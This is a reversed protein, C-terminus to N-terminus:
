PHKVLLYETKKVRKKLIGRRTLTELAEALHLHYRSLGAPTMDLEVTGEIYSIIDIYRFAYGISFLRLYKCVNEMLPNTERTKCSSLGLEVTQAQPKPTNPNMAPTIM